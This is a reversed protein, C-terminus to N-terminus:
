ICQCNWDMKGCKPCRGRATVKTRAKMTHADEPYESQDDEYPETDGSSGEPSQGLEDQGTYDVDEDQMMQAEMLEHTWHSNKAVNLCFMVQEQRKTPDPIRCAGCLDIWQEIPDEFEYEPKKETAGQSFAAVADRQAMELTNMKRRNIKTVFHRGTNGAM